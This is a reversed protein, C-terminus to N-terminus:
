SSEAIAMFDGGSIIARSPLTSPSSSSAELRATCAHIARAQACQLTVDVRLRFWSVLVSASPHDAMSPFNEGLETAYSNTHKLGCHAICRSPSLFTPTGKRDGMTTGIRIVKSVVVNCRYSLIPSDM